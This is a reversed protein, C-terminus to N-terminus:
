PEEMGRVAVLMTFVYRPKSTDPDPLASPGAYEQVRYVPHGELTDGRLAFLLARVLQATVHARHETDAWCEVGLQAEDTVIDRRVGGLRRLLVFGASPIGASPTRAGVPTTVSRAVLGARVYDVALDVVDPFIVVPAV